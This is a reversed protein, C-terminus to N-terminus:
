IQWLFCSEDHRLNNCGELATLRSALQEEDVPELEEDAPELEDLSAEALM